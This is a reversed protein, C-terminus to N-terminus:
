CDELRLSQTSQILSDKAPCQPWITYPDIKVKEDFAYGIFHKTTCEKWSITFISEYVIQGM